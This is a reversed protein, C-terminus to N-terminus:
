GRVDVVQRLELPKLLYDKVGYQIAKQAYKFEEHGSILIKPCSPIFEQMFAALELGDMLPMKIDTLVIDVVHEYLFKQASFGNPLSAAITVYPMKNIRDEILKRACNEDDVLLISYNHKFMIM